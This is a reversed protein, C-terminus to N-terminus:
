YGKNVEEYQKKFDELVSKRYKQAPRQTILSTGDTYGEERGELEKILINRLYKIRDAHEADNIANHSETPDTDLRFYQEIGNQSFWIYKDYETVIFHNSYYGYSHEGHIYENKNSENGPLFSKGDINDPIEINAIDLLTPMVDRLEVLKDSRKHTDKIYKEPGYLIMPIRASSQYPIAKRYRMHDCLMEGHDATFLIITNKMLCDQHMAELLKGIEYDIHTICAYYGARAMRIQEKDIPGSQSNYVRGEKELLDFDDWDGTIPESLQKNSYMDLFAKPADFPPHPRVYSINLFFPKSRDRRRFFDIAQDTVWNTPHLYEEYPWPRTMWCNSELGTDTIDRSIGMKDKFWYFYDDAFRSDEYSPMSTNRYSHVYGDHLIVNHFGILNRIPYVHMKGVAQTYYGANSLVSAMTQPYNWEVRDQYGVRGHNKPSLGTHLSARSAICSPCATYANRYHIGQSALTDLYPTKVDPHGDFGLCDGRFQDCMILIINPREM